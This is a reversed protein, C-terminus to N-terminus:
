KKSSTKTDTDDDAHEIFEKWLLPKGGSTVDIIQSLPVKGYGYELFEKMQKKSMTLAIFEARTIKKGEYEIEENAIQQFLERLQDFTKPRGKLNRRPDDGKKFPKLGSINRKKKETM